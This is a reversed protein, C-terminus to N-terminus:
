HLTNKGDQGRHETLIYKGCKKCNMDQKESEM